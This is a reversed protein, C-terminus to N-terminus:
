LCNLTANFINSYVLGTCSCIVMGTLVTYMIANFRFALTWHTNLQAVAPDSSM